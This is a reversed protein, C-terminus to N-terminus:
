SLGNPTPARIVAIAEGMGDSVGRTIGDVFWSISESVLQGVQGDHLKCATETMQVGQRGISNAIEIGYGVLNESIKHKRELRATFRVLQVLYPLILHLLLILNM